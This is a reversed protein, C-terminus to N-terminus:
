QEEEEYEESLSLKLLKLLRGLDKKANWDRPLEIKALRGVGLPIPISTGGVLISSDALAVTTAVQEHRPAGTDTEDQECRDSTARGSALPSDLVQAKGDPRQYILRSARCADKFWEVWQPAVESDVKLEQVLINVLFQDEPLLRGRHREYIRSLTDVRLMAEKIALADDIENVPHTIRSGTDSLTVVNDTEEIIGYLRLAGVKKVFSSSTKTNGTIQSFLDYTASGAAQENIKKALEVADSLRVFPPYTGRRKRDSKENTSPVARQKLGSADSM